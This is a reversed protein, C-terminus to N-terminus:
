LINEGKNPNFYYKCSLCGEDTYYTLTTKGTQPMGTLCLIKM